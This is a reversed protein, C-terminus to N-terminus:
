SHASTLNMLQEFRYSATEEDLWFGNVHGSNKTLWDDEDRGVFEVVEGQDDLVPHWYEKRGCPLIFEKHTLKIKDDTFKSYDIPM